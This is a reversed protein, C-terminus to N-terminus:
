RTLLQERALPREVHGRVEDRLWERETRPLPMQEIFGKVQAALKPQGESMLVDSVAQWGREVEKRTKLLKAKGPEVRIDGTLLDASVSEVREQMHTSYRKPDHMPRYVGDLKQPTTAGRVARETANAAVGHERLHRAFERRWERLSAKRINLREGQEGMAKIVLHTHPHAQDTHLVIAYRHKFAFQERAFAHSAALLRDPPTGAPMSLIVNHVLKIPKRGPKGAYPSQSVAADADLDWDEILSKEVGERKLKEGDDTEIDLEGHRDIYKLHAIVAKPTTGGGSVKLMVEPVRRVTRAIQEVQALSLGDTRGPGRRGFSVLDFLPQGGRINVTHSAM